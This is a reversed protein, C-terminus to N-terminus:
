SLSRSEPRVAALAETRGFRSRKSCRNSSATSSTATSWNPASEPWRRMASVYTEGPDLSGYRRATFYVSLQDEPFEGTRVHYAATRAEFSLRCQTRCDADLALQLAPESGLVTAGPIELMRELAPPLGLAEVLLENHNGRYLFDFGYMINLSECDLPSVSLALAGTGSGTRAAPLFPKFINKHNKHSWWTGYILFIFALLSTISTIINMYPSSLTTNWFLFPLLSLIIIFTVSLLVLSKFENLSKIAFM